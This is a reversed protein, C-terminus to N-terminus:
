ILLDIFYSFTNCLIFADCIYEYLSTVWPLAYEKQGLHM